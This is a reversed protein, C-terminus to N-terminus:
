RYPSQPEQLCPPLSSLHQLSLRYSASPSSQNQQDQSSPTRHYTSLLREKCQFNGIVPLNLWADAGWKWTLDYGDIPVLCLLFLAVGYITWGIIWLFHTDLLCIIITIVIGIVAATIQRYLNGPYADYGVALVKSLVYLGIVTLMLIPVILYYDVTRLYNNGRLKEIGSKNGPM